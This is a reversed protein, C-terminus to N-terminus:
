NPWALPKTWIKVDCREIEICHQLEEVDCQISNIFPSNACGDLHALTKDNLQTYMNMGALDKMAFVDFVPQLLRV